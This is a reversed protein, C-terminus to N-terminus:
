NIQLSSLCTEDEEQQWNRQERSYELWHNLSRARIENGLAWLDKHTMGTLFRYEVFKDFDRAPLLPSLVHSAERGTSNLIPYGRKVRRLVREPLVGRMARRVIYKSRCWPVPPVSLLFRLMRVDAFPHRVEYPFQTRAPDLGEFMEQWLPINLSAYGRPRIPHVPSTTAAPSDSRIQEWRARLQLKSELEPNMWEPYIPGGTGQASKLKFRKFVASPIPIQRHLVVHWALDQLLRGFRRKGLLNFFYPRWEYFLANDPGEGYLFVRAHSSLGRDREREMNYVWSINVPEPTLRPVGTGAAEAGTEPLRTFHIPIGLRAAVLGACDREEDDIPAYNGLTTFARLESGGGRERLIESATAALTTSDLGGSMFIGVRNTRLRDKVVTRTLDRFHDTYDDLRSYFLPEDIPLGWYCRLRLGDRSWSACHAPPVRQIDAFSTTASDHNCEFLLFDAIALDNLRDSVAPHIRVCNLTNSFIVVDGLHAYYFPKVGMHDRACFLRQKPGDWIGFGFDGLLNEVCAEGWTLYARLILEVDSADLTATQGQTKLKAILEGRADVRADAVIWVQGDLTFPQREHEAEDTTRLLTHGFGVPGDTWVEQADPGRSVLSNTMRELLERDVPAGDLHCIGVIGSM